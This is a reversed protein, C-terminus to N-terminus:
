TTENSSASMESNSAGGDQALLAKMSLRLRGREDAAL